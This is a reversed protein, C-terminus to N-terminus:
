EVIPLGDWLQLLVHRHSRLRRVGAPRLHFYRRARGGRVPSSEGMRSGVLGKEELRRMAVYLSARSIQKRTVRRLEQLVPVGYADDGVRAIALLVLHELEGLSDLAM